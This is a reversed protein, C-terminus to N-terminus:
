KMKIQKAYNEIMNLTSKDEKFSFRAKIITQKCKEKWTKAFEKEENSSGFFNTKTKPLALSLFELIDEKTNPIPFTSIIEIKKRHINDGGFASQFMKSYSKGIAVLPNSTNDDKRTDEVANLMEFLKTISNNAEKNRIEFNCFDCKISFSPIEAGCNPCKSKTQQNSNSIKPSKQGVESLVGELEMEFEDLDVNLQKAKRFLIEREKDTLVNDKLAINLLKQLEHHM